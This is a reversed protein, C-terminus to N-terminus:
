IVMEEAIDEDDWEPHGEIMDIVANVTDPTTDIADALDDVTRKKYGRRVARVIHEWHGVKRNDRVLENYLM